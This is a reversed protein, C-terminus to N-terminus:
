KRHQGSFLRNHIGRTVNIKHTPKNFTLDQYIYPRMVKNPPRSEAYKANFTNEKVHDDISHNVNSNQQTKYNEEDIHNCNCQLSSLLVPLLFMAHFFGFVMVLVVIKFFTSFVYSEATSLVSISLITSVAGQIIPTGLHGLASRTAHRLKGSKDIAFHYSIHATFDVSFGISQILNIMSVTDLNVDWHVMFGVVYVRISLTALTIWVTTTFSPILILSIVLISAVAISLNILTTRLVSSYQDDYIFVDSFVVIDLESRRARERVFKMLEVEDTLSNIDKSKISFRSNEISYNARGIDVDVIFAKYAPIRLFENQLIDIFEPMALRDINRNTQLLFNKFAWLWSNVYDDEEYFYKSYQLKRIFRDMSHRVSADTYDLSDKFGVMIVPSVADDFDSRLKGWFDYFYSSEPVLQRPEIGQKLSCCGFLAISLGILYVIIVTVKVRPKLLFDAFDTGLYVTLWPLNVDNGDVITSSEISPFSSYTPKERTSTRSGQKVVDKVLRPLQINANKHREHTETEEYARNLFEFSNGPIFLCFM